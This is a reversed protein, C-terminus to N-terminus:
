QLMYSAEWMTIINTLYVIIVYSQCAVDNITSYKHITVSAATNILIILNHMGVTMKLYLPNKKLIQVCHPNYKLNVMIRVLDFYRIYAHFQFIKRSLM